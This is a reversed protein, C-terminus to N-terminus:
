VDNILFMQFCVVMPAYCINESAAFSWLFVLVIDNGAYALAYYPSRLFTLYMALFSTAISLTSIFINANGIYTLIFYFSITVVATIMFMVATQKKTVKSVEVEGTDEFPHRTWSIINLVAMPLTMCLYTIMEGYYNYYYSIVAYLIAFAVCIYNGIVNGKAIFILSTVGTLSAAFTLKDDSFLCFSLTIMGVSVLWIILDYRNLGSFLAKLKM